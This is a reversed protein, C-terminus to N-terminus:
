LSRWAQDTHGLAEDSIVAECYEIFTDAWRRLSFCERKQWAGESLDEYLQADSILRNMAAALDLPDGPKVLIGCTEDVIEAVGRWKSAVVPMGVSYAELIAGSLGEDRYYTPLLLVSYQRLTTIVDEPAVIGCYTVRNYRAFDAEQIGDQLPGFIHIEVDQELFESAQLIENIGKSPKVHGMFIFRRCM